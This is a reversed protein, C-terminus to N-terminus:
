QLIGVPALLDIDQPFKYPINIDVRGPSVVVAARIASKLADAGDYLDAEELKKAWRYVVGELRQPTTTAATRPESLTKLKLKIIPELTTVLDSNAYDTQLRTSLKTFQADKFNKFRYSTGGWKLVMNGDSNVTLPAYRYSIATNREDPTPRDGPHIGVVPADPSGQLALGNWNQGPFTSAAVAAAIRSATEWGANADCQAWGPVYRASLLLKPSTANTIDEAALAALSYTNVFIAVSQKLITPAAQGEIYSSTTGLESATTYFLSWAKQYKDLAKLNDLADTLTPVGAGATGVSVAVTQTTVGSLAATVSLPRIPRGNVFLFSVTGTPSSPQAARIPYANTLLKSVVATGVVANTQTDTVTVSATHKGMTVLLSGSSAVAATGTVVLTGFIAAIGSAGKSAFSVELGGNDYLGKHPATLSFTATSVSGAAPPAGLLGWATNVNTAITAWADGAAIGVSVGRGRLKVTVTDAAAATTASSLVGASPEGTFTINLVQKTGGSPELLGMCWCEMGVPVMSKAAAYSQALMSTADAGADVQDQSLARTPENPRFNGSPLMYGWILCANNQASLGPDGDSFVTVYVGPERLGAPLNAVVFPTDAAM